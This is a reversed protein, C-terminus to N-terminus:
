SIERNEAFTKGEFYKSRWVTLLEYCLTLLGEYQINYVRPYVNKSHKCIRSFNIKLLM